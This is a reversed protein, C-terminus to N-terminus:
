VLTESDRFVGWSWWCRNKGNNQKRCAGIRCLAVYSTPSADSFTVSLFFECKYMFEQSKRCQICMLNFNHRYIVSSDILGDMEGLVNRETKISAKSHDVVNVTNQQPICKDSQYHRYNGYNTNIRIWYLSNTNQNEYISVSPPSVCALERCSAASNACVWAIQQKSQCTDNQVCNM